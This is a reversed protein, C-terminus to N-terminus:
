YLSYLLSHHSIRVNFCGWGYVDGTSTLAFCASDTAVVQAWTPDGEYNASPIATPTSELPNLGSDDDDSDSESDSVAADKTPAVWTTDRGLAGDDNVGWTFLENDKTIAVCHMGGVAIQVVGVTAADLLDNLRPRRVDTPKKGNRKIAGLGLEGNEGSGFVYVDLRVPSQENLDLGKRVKRVKKTAQVKGVADVAAKRKPPMKILSLHQSATTPTQALQTSTHM